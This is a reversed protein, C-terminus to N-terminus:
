PTSSRSADIRVARSLFNVNESISAPTRARVVVFGARDPRANPIAAYPAGTTVMGTAFRSASSLTSQRSHFRRTIHNQSARRSSSRHIYSGSLTDTPPQIRHVCGCGVKAM